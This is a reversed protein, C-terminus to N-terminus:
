ISKPISVTFSVLDMSSLPVTFGDVGLPVLRLLVTVTVVVVGSGVGLVSVTIVLTFVMASMNTFLIPGALPVAPSSIILYVRTTPM